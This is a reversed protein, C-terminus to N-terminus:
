AVFGAPPLEMRTAAGLVYVGLPQSKGKLQLERRAAGATDIGGMAVAADSVLIEGRGALSALRATANPLDGLVALQSIGGSGVSGVFAVGTHVGAGVPLWPGEPRTHGTAELLARAAEVAKSAHGPGAFGPPFLVAAEDGVFKEILGAHSAVVETAATYFRDMLASFATPSMSEALSTSGRVDAFLLTVEIEAGGPHTRMFDDCVNCITPNMSSRGRHFLRQLISGGIGGFPANCWTCRPNSPLRGLIWREAHVEMVRQTMLRRWFEPDKTDARV